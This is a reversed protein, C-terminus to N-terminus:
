PVEHYGLCETTDDADDVKCRQGSSYVKMRDDIMDVKWWRQDTDCVGETSNGAGEHHGDGSITMMTGLGYNGLELMSDLLVDNLEENVIRKLVDTLLEMIANYIWDMESKFQVFIKQIILQSNSINLQVM